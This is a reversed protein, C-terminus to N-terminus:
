TKIVPLIGTSRLALSLESIKRKLVPHELDPVLEALPQLVFRREHMLPHPVILGPEHIVQNDFLLLDLDITRPGWKVRRERGLEREIQLLRDLLNRADLRTEVEAVANLFPPSDAPGGVAPNELFTSVRVVRCDQTQNLRSVASHFHAVRDGINSGLAIYALVPRDFVM